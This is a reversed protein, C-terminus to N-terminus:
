VIQGRTRLSSKHSCLCKYVSIQKQWSCLDVGLIHCMDTLIAFIRLLLCYTELSRDTDGAGGAEETCSLNMLSGALRPLNLSGAQPLWHFAIM